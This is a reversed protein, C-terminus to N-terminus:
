PSSRQGAGATATRVARVMATCSYRGFRKQLRRGLPRGLRVLWSGPRSFAFLDYWVTGDAHHEVTFREEGREAHAPLTGYAFGARRVPSEEDIRYVIRCANLWWLGYAHALVGVVAGPVPAEPPYCQVWGIHFMQWRELAARAADFANRGRGLLVRRHDVVYGAPASEKSAGVEAYSFPQGAQRALFAAVEEPSPKLISLRM